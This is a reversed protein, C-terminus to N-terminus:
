NNSDKAGMKQTVDALLRYLADEVAPRLSAQNPAKLDLADIKADLIPAIKKVWQDANLLGYRVHSIEALETRLNRRRSLGNITQWTFAAAVALLLAGAALRWWPLRQSPGISESGPAM